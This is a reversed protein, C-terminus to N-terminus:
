SNESVTCMKFHPLIKIVIIEQATEGNDNDIDSKRLTFSVKESM